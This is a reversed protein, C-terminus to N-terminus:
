ALKCYSITFDATHLEIFDSKQASAVSAVCWEGVDMADELMSKVFSLNPQGQELVFSVRANNTQACIEQVCLFVCVAYANGVRSKLHESACTKYTEKSITLLVGSVKSNEIAACLDPFLRSSDKAHFRNSLPEWLQRFAKWQDESGYFGGVSLVPTEPNLGSEDLFASLM